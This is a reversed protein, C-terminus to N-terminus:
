QPDSISKAIIRVFPVMEVTRLQVVITTVTCVTVCCFESHIAQSMARWRRPKSVAGTVVADVLVVTVPDVEITRASVEVSSVTPLSLQSVHLADAKYTPQVM